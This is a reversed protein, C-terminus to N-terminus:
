ENGIMEKRKKEIYLKEVEDRFPEWQEKYENSLVIHKTDNKVEIGFPVSNSELKSILLDTYQPETFAFSTSDADSSAIVNAALKHVLEQFRIPFWVEGNEGLRVPINRHKLEEILIKQSSPNHIKYMLETESCAIVVVAIISALLIKYVGRM